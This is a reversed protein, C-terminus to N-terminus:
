LSDRESYRDLLAKAIKLDAMEFGEKCGGRILRLLIAVKPFLINATNKLPDQAHSTRHVPIVGDETEM